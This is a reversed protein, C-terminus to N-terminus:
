FNQKNEIKETFFKEIKQFQIVFHKALEEPHKLSEGLAFILHVNLEFILQVIWNPDINHQILYDVVTEALRKGHANIEEILCDPLDAQKLIQLEHLTM